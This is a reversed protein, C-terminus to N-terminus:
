RQALGQAAQESSQVVLLQGAGALTVARYRPITLGPLLTQGGLETTYVSFLGANYRRSSAAALQGLVKRQSAVLQPCDQIVLRALLPLSGPACLERSAARVLQDGAFAEFDETGPNTVALALLGVGAAAVWTWRGDGTSATM